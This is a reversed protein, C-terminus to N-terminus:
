LTHQTATKVTSEHLIVRRSVRSSAYGPKCVGARLEVGWSNLALFCGTTIYLLLRPTCTPRFMICIVKGTWRIGKWICFYCATWAILLTIALHGLVSGPNDIGSSRQLV